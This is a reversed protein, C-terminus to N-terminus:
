EGLLGDWVPVGLFQGLRSADLRLDAIDSNETLHLRQGNKLILNLECGSLQLSSSEPFANLLQLAHIDDLKCFRFPKHEKLKDFGDPTLSEFKGKWFYGSYKDFVRPTTWCKFVYFGSGIFGAGLVLGMLTFVGGDALGVAIM